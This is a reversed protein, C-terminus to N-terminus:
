TVITFKNPNYLRNFINFIQDALPCEHPLYVFALELSKSIWLESVKRLGRTINASDHFNTRKLYINM